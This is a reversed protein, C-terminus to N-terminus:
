RSRPEWVAEMWLSNGSAVRDVRVHQLWKNPAPVEVVDSVVSVRVQDLRRMLTVRAVSTAAILVETIPELLERRVEAALQCPEGRIALQVVVGHREAVDIAAQLGHLLRDPTNDNEAFLRRMRAAEIACRRRTGAAAPDLTGSALAALLPATTELLQAYRRERDRHLLAAAMEATRISEAARFSETASRAVRRIVLAALGLGLQLGVVSVGQIVSSALDVVPAGVMVVVSMTITVHTALFAAIAVMPLDFLLFLGYWGVLGFYWHGVRVVPEPPLAICTLASALLLTAVGLWRASPPYYRRRMVFFAGGVGVLAMLVFAVSELWAGDAQRMRRIAPALSLGFQVVVAVILLAIRLGNLLRRETLTISM